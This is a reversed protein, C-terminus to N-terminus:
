VKVSMLVKLGDLSLNNMIIRYSDRTSNYKVSVEWNSVPLMKFNDVPIKIEFEKSSDCAKNVSFKNSKANFKNTAGLSVTMDGDQSTFLVESLDKFVGTASKISKIDEISLDFTAVSPVEETKTFQSPDKNYADMLMINDMIYSSSTNGSSVNITNESIDVVRDDGFLKFLNLFDSLSDKLGIDPFQDSDLASMDVLLMMDQSESVAVTEPYKLIVSNTVGNIQTLVDTVAKNFMYRDKM